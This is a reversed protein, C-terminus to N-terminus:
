KQVKNPFAYREWAGAEGCTGASFGTLFCMADTADDGILKRIEAFAIDGVRQRYFCMAIAFLNIIAASKNTEAQVRAAEIAILGHMESIM